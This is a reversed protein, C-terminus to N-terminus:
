HVGSSNRDSSAGPPEVLEPLQFSQQVFFWKRKSHSFHTEPDATAHPFDRIEGAVLGVVPRSFSSLENM